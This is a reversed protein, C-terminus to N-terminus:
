FRIYKVGNETFSQKPDNYRILADSIRLGSTKEFHPLDVLNGKWDGGWSWGYKKFIRVVEVWDAIGDGDFDVNSEWSAAEFTGNRDRDVLLVIDIAAGYNHWSQGGRANTVIRGKNGNRGQAFLANQEQFTRLTHSFRCIARGKLAECIEAYIKTVEPRLSPHLLKIRDLTVKDQM